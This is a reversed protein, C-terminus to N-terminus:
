TRGVQFQPVSANYGAVPSTSATWTLLISHQVQTTVTLGTSGNVSGTVAQIITSGVAVGSALGGSSITAVSPTSSTWTM